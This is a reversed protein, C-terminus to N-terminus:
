IYVILTCYSRVFVVPGHPTGTYQFIQYVSTASIIAELLVMSPGVAHLKWQKLHRYLLLLVIFMYSSTQSRACIERDTSCAVHSVSSDIRM